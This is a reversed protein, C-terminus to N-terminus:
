NFQSSKIDRSLLMEIYGIVMAHTNDMEEIVDERGAQEKAYKQARLRWRSYIRNMEGIVAAKAEFLDM